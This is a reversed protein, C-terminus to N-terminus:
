IDLGVLCASIETSFPDPVSFDSYHSCRLFEISSGAFVSCTGVEVKIPIDNGALFICADKRQDIDAGSPAACIRFAGRSIGTKSTFIEYKTLDTGSEMKISFSVNSRCGILDEFNEEVNKSIKAANVVLPIVSLLIAIIFTNRYKM